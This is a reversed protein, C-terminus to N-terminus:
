DNGGIIRVFLYFRKSARWHSLFFCSVSDWGNILWEIQSVIGILEILSSDIIVPNFMHIIRIGRKFSWYVHSFICLFLFSSYSYLFLHLTFFYLCLSLLYSPFFSEVGAGRWRCESGATGDM